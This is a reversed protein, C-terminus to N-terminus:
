VVFQASRTRLATTFREPPSRVASWTQTARTSPVDPPVGTASEWGSGGAGAM